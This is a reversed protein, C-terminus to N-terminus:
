AAVVHISEITNYMYGGPNWIPITPQAEGKTNTCRVMLSQLGHSPLTVQTKWQRFSYKGEDKGLEAPQWNKGEDISLDVRAVGCDGGFAIGRVATSAGVPMTDGAKINTIFSRPVNRTVPVLKFDTDGPKVNANPVDPNRYATTTWYNDDPHDLVEIDSLM